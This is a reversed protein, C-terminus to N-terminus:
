PTPEPAKAQELMPKLTKELEQAGPTGYLVHRITGERDVLLFTPLSSVFLTSAVSGEPDHAIEYGVPRNRVFKELVPRDEDSVGVVKLGQKAYRTQLEELLPMARKCPGCWTAWADIILVKGKLTGLDLAKTTTLSELPLAPLPRNLWEDELMSKRDPVDGLSVEYALDDGDRRLLLKLTEGKSHSKVRAIMEPTGAKLKAGAVELVIDGRLVGAKEAPSGRFVHKVRAARGEIGAKTAEEGEVDRLGVGLWGPTESPSPVDIGALPDPKADVEAAKPEEQARTPGAAFLTLACLLVGAYTRASRSSMDHM